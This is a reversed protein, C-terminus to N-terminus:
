GAVELSDAVSERQNEPGATSTPAPRLRRLGAALLRALERPQEDPSLSAPDDHPRMSVETPCNGVAGKARRGARQRVPLRPALRRGGDPSVLREGRPLSGLIVSTMRMRDAM